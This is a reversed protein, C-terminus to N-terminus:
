EVYQEQWTTVFMGSSGLAAVPGVTDVAGVETTGMARVGTPRPLKIVRMGGEILLKTMADM